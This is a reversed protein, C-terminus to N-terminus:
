DARRGIIFVVHSDVLTFCLTDKTAIFSSVSEINEIELDIHSNRFSINGGENFKFDKDNEVLIASDGDFDTKQFMVGYCDYYIYFSNEGDSAIAGEKTLFVLPPSNFIGGFGSFGGEIKKVFRTPNNESTFFTNWNNNKVYNIKDNFEKEGLCFIPELYRYPIQTLYDLASERYFSFGSLWAAVLSYKKFNETDIDEPLKYIYEAWLTSKERLFISVNYVVNILFSLFDPNLFLLNKLKFIIKLFINEFFPYKGKNNLLNIKYIELINQYFVVVFDELKTEDEMKLDNFLPEIIKKVYGLFTEEDLSSNASKSLLFAGNFYERNRSFIEVLKPNNILEM